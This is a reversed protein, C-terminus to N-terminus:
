EIYLTDEEVFDPVQDALFCYEATGGYNQFMESDPKFYVTVSYDDAVAKNMHWNDYIWGSPYIVESIEAIQAEEEYTAYMRTDIEMATKYDKEVEVREAHAQAYLLEGPDMVGIVSEDEAMKEELQMAIESNYNTIQIREVDAPNVFKGMYYGKEKLYSICEDFFPYIRLEAQNTITYTDVKREIYVIISGEPVSERQNIFGAKVIDQKYLSFLQKIDEKKMQKEYIGNGYVVSLQYEENALARDLIDSAGIYAGAIFEESSELRDILDVTEADDLNVYMNRWVESKNKMRYLVSIQHWDGAGEDYIDDLSEMTDMGDISKKLLKNVTGVDTLYMHEIMYEYRSMSDMDDDFYSEGYYTYGDYPPVIAVSEVKETEPIYSDYGSLDYKYVALVLMTIVAAILIHYKKHLAGKIDFEYIVQMLCCMVILVIAMSFAIYGFRGEGYNPRYGVINGVLLGAILTVPVAILIKIWPKPAGFALAKGAAEAPRKLYCFYAIVGVVTAFLLLYVVTLFPGTAERSSISQGKLSNVYRFLIAFPSFIPETESGYSAYFKYYLDMYGQLVLRVVVEYLFFVAVAFCTIVMNGTLMVALIALHYVGLYLCFHMGYAQLAKGLIEGSMVGNFFAILCSLLIGIFYPILYAIIGNLWILLFRSKRKVPMGMYFDIKQRHYLYSFGQIASVVAFAAVFFWMVNDLGLIQEVRAMLYQKMKQAGLVEGYTTLYHTSSTMGRSINLATATPLAIVFGLASLVWLWIRRKNNETMSALFSNKSTM